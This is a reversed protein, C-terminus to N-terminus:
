ITTKRKVQLHFHENPKGEEELIMTYGTGLRKLVAAIFARKAKLSPFSKSRIDIAENSYHKSTTAHTGDNGSTVLITTPADLTQAVNAVAAMLVIVPPQVGAKIKILAM